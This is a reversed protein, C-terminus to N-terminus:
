LTYLYVFRAGARSLLWQAHILLEQSLNGLNKFLKLATQGQQVLAAGAQNRVVIRQTGQRIDRILIGDGGHKARPIQAHGLGTAQQGGGLARRIIHQAHGFVQDLRQHM